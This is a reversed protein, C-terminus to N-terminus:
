CHWRVQLAEKENSAAVNSATELKMREEDAARETEEEHRKRLQLVGDEHEKHMHGMAAEQEKHMHYIAAEQEAAQHGISNKLKEEAETAM